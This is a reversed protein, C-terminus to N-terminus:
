RRECAASVTAAHSRLRFQEYVFAGVLLALLVVFLWNKTYFALTIVGPIYLASAVWAMMEKHNHYTTNYEIEAVLWHYYRGSMLM